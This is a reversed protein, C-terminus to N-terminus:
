KTRGKTLPADGEVLEGWEPAQPRPRPVAHTCTPDTQVNNKRESKLTVSRCGPPAQCTLPVQRPIVAREPCSRPRPLPSPCPLRWAQAPLVLLARETAGPPVWLLVRRLLPHDCTGLVARCSSSSPWGEVAPVMLLLPQRRPPLLFSSGLPLLVKDRFLKGAGASSGSDRRELNPENGKRGRCLHQAWLRSSKM